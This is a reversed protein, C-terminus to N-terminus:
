YKKVFKKRPDEPTSEGSRTPPIQEPSPTPTSADTAPATDVTDVFAMRLNALSQQLLDNEAKSLNGKTKAALMELTDIFVSAAPMDTTTKGTQPHPAHGLFILAMKAQQMVLSAFLAAHHPDETTGAPPQNSENSM